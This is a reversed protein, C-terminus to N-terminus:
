SDTSNRRGVQFDASHNFMYEVTLAKEETLNEFDATCLSMKDEKIARAFTVMGDSSYPAPSDKEFDGDTTRPVGMADFAAYVEEESVNKLKIDLGTAGNGINIFEQLTMAKPGNINLITKHIDDALLAYMAAKACDKRSIYAMLGDGQCSVMTNGTNTASFYSTIMAEAYQSNRLFIYDLDTGQIYSETYAHDIKEVSPNEPDAANVLSTYVVKKVGAKIAADIANKHAAQRKKGVFPASILLIVDGGKFAAVLEESHNFNAQRCDIGRDKYKTLGEKFPCTFILNAKATKELIHDAVYAGFNGDVGTVIIKSM